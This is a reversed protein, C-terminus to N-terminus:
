FNLSLGTLAYFIDRIKNPQLWLYSIEKSDLTDFIDINFLPIPSFVAPRCIETVKTVKTVKVRYTRCDARVSKVSFSVSDDGKYEIDFADCMIVLNDKGGFIELIDNMKRSFIMLVPKFTSLPM